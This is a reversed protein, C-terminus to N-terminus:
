ANMKSSIEDYEHCQTTITKTLIISNAKTFISLFWISDCNMMWFRHFRNFKKNYIRHRKKKKEYYPLLQFMACIKDGEVCHYILIVIFETLELGIVVFIHLERNNFCFLSHDDLLEALNWTKATFDSFLVILLISSRSFKLCAVM